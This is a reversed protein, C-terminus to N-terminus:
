LIINFPNFMFEIIFIFMSIFMTYVGITTTKSLIDKNYKINYICVIRVFAACGLALLISVALVLNM